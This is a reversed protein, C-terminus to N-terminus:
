PKALILGLEKEADILDSNQMWLREGLSSVPM